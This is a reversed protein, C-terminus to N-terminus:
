REEKMGQDIMRIFEKWPVNPWNQKRIYNLRERNRREDAEIHRNREPM